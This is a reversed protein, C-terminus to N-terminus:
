FPHGILVRKKTLDIGYKKKVFSTLTNFEQDTLSILGAAGSSRGASSPQRFADNGM